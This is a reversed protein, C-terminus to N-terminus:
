NILAATQVLTAGPASTLEDFEVIAVTSAIVLLLVVLTSIGTKMKMGWLTKDIIFSYAIPRQRAMPTRCAAFNAPCAVYEPSLRFM